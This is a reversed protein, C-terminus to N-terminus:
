FESQKGCHQLRRNRTIKTYINYRLKTPLKYIEELQNEMRERINERAGILSTYVNRRERKKFRACQIRHGGM